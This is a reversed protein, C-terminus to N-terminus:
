FLIIRGLNGIKVKAKGRVDFNYSHSKRFVHPRFIKEELQPELFGMKMHGDDKMLRERKRAIDDDDDM